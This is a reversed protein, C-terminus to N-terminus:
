TILPHHSYVMMQIHLRNNPSIQLADEAARIRVWATPYYTERMSDTQSNSGQLPENVIELMGVNRYSSNTHIGTTM